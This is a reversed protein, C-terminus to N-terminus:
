KANSRFRRPIFFRLWSTRVWAALALESGSLVEVLNAERRKLAGHLSEYNQELIYNKKELHILEDQLKLFDKGLSQAAKKWDVNKGREAIMKRVYRPTVRPKGDDGVSGYKSSFTTM